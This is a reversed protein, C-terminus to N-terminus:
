VRFAPIDREATIFDEMDGSQAEITQDTIAWDSHRLVGDAHGEGGLFVAGAKKGVARVGAAHQLMRTNDLVNPTDLLAPVGGILAVAVRMFDGYKLLTHLKLCNTDRRFLRLKQLCSFKLDILDGTNVANRGVHHM